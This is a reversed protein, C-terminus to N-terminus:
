GVRVGIVRIGSHGIGKSPREAQHHQMGKCRLLILSRSHAGSSQAFEDLRDGKLLESLLHRCRQRSGAVTHADCAVGLPGDSRDRYAPSRPIGEQALRGAGVGVDCGIKAVMTGQVVEGVTGAGEDVDGM